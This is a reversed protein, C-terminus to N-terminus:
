PKYTKLPSNPSKTKNIFKEPNDETELIFKVEKKDDIANITIIYLPNFDIKEYINRLGITKFISHGNHDLRTKKDIDFASNILM